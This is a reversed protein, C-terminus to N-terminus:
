LAIQFILEETKTNAPMQDKEEKEKREVELKIQLLKLLEDRVESHSTGQAVVGDIENLWGVFQNENEQVLDYTLKISKM